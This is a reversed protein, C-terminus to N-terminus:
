SLQNEGILFGTFTDTMDWENVVGSKIRKIAINNM